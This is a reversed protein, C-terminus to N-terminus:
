TLNTLGAMYSQIGTLNRTADPALAGATLASGSFASGFMYRVAMIGDSLAGVSGNGDIDLYKQTVGEQLYAQIESLSRTATPSIAGAILANGSFASGFLYRVAIIGDSLAGIKGDGDIDLNWPKKTVLLPDAKLSYGTALTSDPATVNLQTGNFGTQATFNFDGLKM